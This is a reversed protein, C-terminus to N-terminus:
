SQPQWTYFRQAAADAPSRWTPLYPQIFPRLRDSIDTFGPLGVGARMAEEASRDFDIIHVYLDGLSHLSRQRVGLAYPLDTRDSDRFIGAVAEESGPKIRAM